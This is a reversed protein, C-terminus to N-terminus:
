ERMQAMLRSEAEHLVNQWWVPDSINLTETLESPLKRQLDGFDVGLDEGVTASGTLERVLSRVEAFPGDDPEATTLKEERRRTKNKVKEIWVNDSGVDVACARVEATLQRLDAGLLNADASEGTLTVRAALLRGEAREIAGRLSGTTQELLDSRGDIKTVDVELNEWRLVDLPAFEVAVEGSEEVRVLLCGKPGSERIHRGQINGPYAITPSGSLVERNHIHGLAWYDYGSSRLCQESCPAYSGHGERGSMSTHLVGINFCGSIPAPYDKALDATTCQEAFSQGHIAVDLGKLRATEPKKTPFLTVNEPLPLTRTIKSAADHNGNVLFAPIGAENLRAMQRVFFLGTNFDPWDGDYLDGALIVFAVEERVATTVLNEMAKRTADRIEEVPAGDYKDLGRLPSDLHIDAAHLFTFM